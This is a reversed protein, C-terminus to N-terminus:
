REARIVAGSKKTQHLTRKVRELRALVHDDLFLQKQGSSITVSGDRVSSVDSLNALLARAERCCSVLDRATESQQALLAGQPHALGGLALFAVLQMLLSSLFRSKM